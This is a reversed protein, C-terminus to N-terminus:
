GQKKRRAYIFGLLALFALLVLILQSYAELYIGVRRWNDGLWWGGYILVGNWLMSSVSSSLVTPWIPLKSAGATLAIVSRTGALFRNSVVVWQGYSRMWEKGKRLYSPNAFRLILKALAKRASRLFGESSDNELDNEQQIAGSTSALLPGGLYSGMQYMTMFGLVSTIVTGLWLGLGNISGLSILYGGFAVIVDGPVPPVINEMYAIFFLLLYILIPSVQGIFDVLTNIVDAM